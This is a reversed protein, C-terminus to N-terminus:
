IEFHSEQAAITDEHNLELANLTTLQETLCSVLFRQWGSLNNQLTTKIVQACNVAFDHILTSTTNEPNTFIDRNQAELTTLSKALQQMAPSAEQALTAVITLFYLRIKALQIQAINAQLCERAAEKSIATQNHQEEQINCASAVLTMADSYAQAVRYLTEHPALEYRIEASEEWIRQMQQLLTTTLSNKNNTWITLIAEKAAKVILHRSAPDVLNQYHATLLGIKILINTITQINKIQLAQNFLIKILNGTTTTLESIISTEQHAMFARMPNLLNLRPNVSLLRAIKTPIIRFLITTPIANFFDKICPHLATSSGLAQIILNLIVKDNFRSFIQADPIKLRKLLLLTRMLALANEESTNEGNYIQAFIKQPLITQLVQPLATFFLQIQELTQPASSALARLFIKTINKSNYITLIEELPMKIKKLLVYGRMLTLSDYSDFNGAAYSLAFLKKALSTKISVQQSRALAIFDQLQIAVSSHELKALSEQITRETHLLLNEILKIQLTKEHNKIKAIQELHVSDLQEITDLRADLERGTATITALNKLSCSAATFHETKAHMDQLRNRTIAITKFHAYINSLLLKRKLQEKLLLIAKYSSCEQYDRTVFVENLERPFHKLMFDIFITPDKNTIGPIEKTRFHLQVLQSFFKLKKLTLQSPQTSSPQILNPPSALSVAIFRDQTELSTLDTM